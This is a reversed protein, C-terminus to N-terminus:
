RIPLVWLMSVIMLSVGPVSSIKTELKKGEVLRKTSRSGKGHNAFRLEGFCYAFQLISVLVVESAEATISSRWLRFYRSAIFEFNLTYLSTVLM